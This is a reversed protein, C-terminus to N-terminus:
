ASCRWGKRVGRVLKLVSLVISVLICWMHYLCTRFMVLYSWNESNKRLTFSTKVTNM